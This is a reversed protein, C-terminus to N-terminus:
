QHVFKKGTWLAAVVHMQYNYRKTSEKIVRRWLEKPDAALRENQRLLQLAELAYRKNEVSTTYRGPPVGALLGEEALGLFTSKPCSKIQSDQSESYIEKAAVKWADALNSRAGISLELARLAVMGYKNPGENRRM